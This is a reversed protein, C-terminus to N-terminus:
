ALAPDWYQSLLAQVAPSIPNSTSAEHNEYLEGLVLLTAAQIDAPIEYTEPSTGLAWADLPASKKIYNMVIASAATLKLQLDPDKHTGDQNVQMKAQELTILDIM